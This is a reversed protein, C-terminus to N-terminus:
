RKIALALGDSVPLLSFDIRDDHHMRDIVRRVSKVTSKQNSSDAVDGRLLANDFVMVGGPRILQFCLDYYDLYSDKNADIFIFDYSLSLGLDIQAQLLEQALGIQLDIKDAVGAQNWADKAITTWEKNSDLALIYTADPLHQAMALTTVGTFVGVEIIRKANMLKLLWILFQTSEPSSVMKSEPMSLSYQRLAQEEPTQRLSHDLIYQYIHETLLLKSPM